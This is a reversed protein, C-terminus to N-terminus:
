TYAHLGGLFLNGFFSLVIVIFGVITMVALRRKRWKGRLEQHILLTYYLWVVLSGTEKPDWSWFSGWANRAWMAGAFMAGITFLPYAIRISRSIFEELPEDAPLQDGTVGRFKLLYVIAAGTAVAFAGESFAALTVHIYFWCSKLAPMLQKSIEKPLLSAMVLVVVVMPSVIVGYYLNHTKLFFVVFAISAVWSMVLAYEYMTALPPHTSIVTRAVIGGTLMVFAVSFFLAAAKGVAKRKLAGYFTFLFFSVLYSWFSLWFFTIDITKGM